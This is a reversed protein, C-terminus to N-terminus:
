LDGAELDSLWEQLVPGLEAAGLPLGYGYQHRIDAVFSRRADLIEEHLRAEKELEFARGDSTRFMPPITAIM